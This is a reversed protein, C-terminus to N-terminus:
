SEIRRKLNVLEVIFRNREECEASEIRRKLNWPCASAVAGAAARREKM